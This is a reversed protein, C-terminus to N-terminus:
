LAPKPTPPRSLWLSLGWLSMFCAALLGIGTSDHWKGMTGLGSQSAICVLTFTRILNFFVALGFGALVLGSRKGLRLQYLQGLFLSIMLSAQLSRIGSCAEDIGVTSLSTAILHGRQLTPIGLLNLLEVDIAALHNQ